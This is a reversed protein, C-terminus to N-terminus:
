RRIFVPVFAYLRVYVHVCACKRIRTRSPPIIIKARAVVYAVISGTVVVPSLALRPRNYKDSRDTRVSEAFM